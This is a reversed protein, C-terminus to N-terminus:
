STSHNRKKTTLEKFTPMPTPAIKLKMSQFMEQPDIESKKIQNEYEKAM